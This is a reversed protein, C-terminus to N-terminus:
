NGSYLCEEWGLDKWESENMSRASGDGMCANANKGHLLNVCEASGTRGSYRNVHYWSSPNTAANKYSDMVIAADSPTLKTTGDAKTPENTTGNAFKVRVTQEMNWCDTYNSMRWMGYGTFDDEGTNAANNFASSDSPCGFIGIKGVGASPLYGGVVLNRKWKYGTNGSGTGTDCVLPYNGVNSDAYMRLALGINKLNGTCNASRARERAASLAPLLMAALIAIIAIVVLLEILTFNGIHKKKQNTM